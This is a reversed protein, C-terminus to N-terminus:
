GEVEDNFMNKLYTQMNDYAMATKLVWDVTDKSLEVCKVTLDLVPVTCPMKLTYRPRSVDIKVYINNM